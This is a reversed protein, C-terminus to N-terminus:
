YYAREPNFLFRESASGQSVQSNDYPRSPRKGIASSGRADSPTAPPSPRLCSESQRSEARRPLHPRAPLNRARGPPRHSGPESVPSANPTRATAPQPILELSPDIGSKSLRPTTRSSAACSDLLVLSGEVSALAPADNTPATM